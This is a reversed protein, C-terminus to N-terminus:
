THMTVKFFQNVRPFDRHIKGFSHIPNAGSLIHHVALPAHALHFYPRQALLCNLHIKLFAGAVDHSQLQCEVLERWQRLLVEQNSTVFIGLCSAASRFPFVGHQGEDGFHQFVVVGQPFSHILYQRHLRFIQFAEQAPADDGRFFPSGPPLFRPRGHPLGRVETQGCLSPFGDTKASGLTRGLRQQGVVLIGTRQLGAHPYTSRPCYSAAALSM